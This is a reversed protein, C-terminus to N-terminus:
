FVQKFNYLSYLFISSGKKDININKSLLIVNLFITLYLITNKHLTILHYFTSRKETLFATRSKMVLSRFYFVM